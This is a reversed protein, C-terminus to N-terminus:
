RADFFVPSYANSAKQDHSNRAVGGGTGTGHPLDTEADGQRSDQDDIVAGEATITGKSNITAYRNVFTLGALSLPHKRPHGFYTEYSEDSIVAYDTSGDSYVHIRERYALMRVSERVITRAGSRIQEEVSFTIHSKRASSVFKRIARGPPVYKAALDVTEDLPRPGDRLLDIFRRTWPKLRKNATAM